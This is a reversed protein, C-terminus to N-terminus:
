GVERFASPRKGIMKQFSNSFSSLSDYGVSYAVEHIPMDPELLLIEMARILRAMKLYQYFSVNLSKQFLRTLTRDSMNFHNAVQELTFKSSLNFQLFQLIVLVRPNESTPLSFPLSPQQSDGLLDTISKVFRYAFSSPLLDGKWKQAYHIMELLLPTVPYIGIKDYFPDKPVANEPVFFTYITDSVYRHWIKHTVNSPIWMCHRAPLLFQMEENQFFTVGGEAYCFQAKSHSHIPLNLAQHTNLFNICDPNREIIKLHEQLVDM